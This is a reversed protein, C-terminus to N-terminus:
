YDFRSRRPGECPFRPFCRAGRADGYRALNAKCQGAIAQREEETKAGLLRCMRETSRAADHEDAM